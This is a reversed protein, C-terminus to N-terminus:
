SDLGITYGIMLSLNSYRTKIDTVRTTERETRANERVRRTGLYTMYAAELRFPGRAIGVSVAYNFSGRLQVQADDRFNEISVGSYAPNEYRDDGNFISWGFRVTVFPATPRQLQLRSVAYFSTFSFAGDHGDIARPLLHEIGMGVQWLGGDVLEAGILVGPTTAGSQDFEVPSSFGTQIRRRLEGSSYYTGAVAAGVRLTFQAYVPAALLTLLTLTLGIKYFM